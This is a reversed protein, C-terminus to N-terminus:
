KPRRDLETQAFFDAAKRLIENARKLKRNERELSKLRDLESTSQGSRAGQDCESRCVWKHHTEPICGIKNAISKIATWQSEYDTQHELVM